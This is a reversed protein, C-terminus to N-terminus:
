QRAAAAFAFTILFYKGWRLWRKYFELEGLAAHTQLSESSLPSIM